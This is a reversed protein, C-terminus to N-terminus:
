LWDQYPYSAVVRELDHLNLGGHKTNEDVEIVWANGYNTVVVIKM